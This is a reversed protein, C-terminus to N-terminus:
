LIHHTLLAHCRASSHTSLSSFRCRLVWCRASSSLSCMQWQSGAIQLLPHPGPGPPIGECSPNMGPGHEPSLGNGRHELGCGVPGLCLRVEWDQNM